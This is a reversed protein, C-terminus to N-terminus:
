RTQGPGASREPGAQPSTRNNVDGDDWTVPLEVAAQLLRLYHPRRIEVVGFQELHPNVFQVDFLTYGRTQLHKVLHVLCLQSAYPKTSFMSEGFFAGGLALGYVGGILQDDHWCEVSHALGLHHLKIFATQIAPSIWSEDEAPRPQACGDITAAFARDRTVTYGLNRVRKALSRRIHFHGLPDNPAIAFVARPDPSYWEIAGSRSDAMPFAGALYAGVLRQPSLEDRSSEPQEPTPTAINSTRQKVTQSSM